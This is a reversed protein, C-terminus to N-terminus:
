CLTTEKLTKKEVFCFVHLYADISRFEAAAYLWFLLRHIEWGKRRLNCYPSWLGLDRTTIGLLFLLLPYWICTDKILLAFVKGSAELLSRSHRMPWFQTVHVGRRLLTKEWGRNCLYTFSFLIQEMINIPCQHPFIWCLCFQMQDLLYVLSVSNLYDAGLFLVHSSFPPYYCCKTKRIRCPFCASACPNLQIFM